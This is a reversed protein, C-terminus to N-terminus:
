RKPDDKIEEFIGGCYICRKEIDYRDQTVERHCM